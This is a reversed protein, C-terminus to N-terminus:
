DGGRIRGAANGSDAPFRRPDKSPAIGEAIDLADGLSMGVRRPSLRKIRDRYRRRLTDESLNTIASATPLTIIRRRELWEPARDFLPNPMHM